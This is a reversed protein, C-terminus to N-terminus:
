KGIEKMFVEDQKASFALIGDEYGDHYMCCYASGLSHKPSAGAENLWIKNQDVLERVIDKAM